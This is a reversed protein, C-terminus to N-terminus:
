WCIQWFANEPVHDCPRSESADSEKEQQRQKQESERPRRSVMKRKPCVAKGRGEVKARDFTMPRNGLTM